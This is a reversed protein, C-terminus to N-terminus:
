SLARALNWAHKVIMYARTEENKVTLGDRFALVDPALRGAVAEPGVGIREAARKIESMDALAAKVQGV